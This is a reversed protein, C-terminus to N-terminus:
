GLCLYALVEGGEGLGIVGLPSAALKRALKTLLAIADRRRAGLVRELLDGDLEVVSPRIVQKRCDARALDRAPLRCMTDDGHELRVRGLPLFLALASRPQSVGLLLGDGLVLGEHRRRCIDARVLASTATGTADHDLPVGIEEGVQRAAAIGNHAIVDHAEDRTPSADRHVAVVTGVNLAQHLMGLAHNVDLPVRRPCRLEM